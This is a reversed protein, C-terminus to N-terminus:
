DIEVVMREAGRFVILREPRCKGTSLMRMAGLPGPQDGAQEGRHLGALGVPREDEATEGVRPVGPQGDLEFELDGDPLSLAVVVRM